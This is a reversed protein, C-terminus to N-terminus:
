TAGMLHVTLTSYLLVYSILTNLKYSVQFLLIDFTSGIETHRYWLRGADIDSQRFRSMEASMHGENHVQWGPPPAKTTMAVVM